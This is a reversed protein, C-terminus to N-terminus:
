KSTKMLIVYLLIWARLLIIDKHVFCRLWVFDIFTPYHWARYSRTIIFCRFSKWFFISILALIPLFPLNEAEPIGSAMSTKTTLSTHLSIGEQDEIVNLQTYTVVTRIMRSWIKMRQAWTFSRAFSYKQLSCIGKVSLEKSSFFGSLRDFSVLMYNQSEIIVCAFLSVFACM